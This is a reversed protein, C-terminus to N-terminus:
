KFSSSATPEELSKSSKTEQPNLLWICKMLTYCGSLTLALQAGAYVPRGGADVIARALPPGTIRAAVVLMVSFQRFAAESYRTGEMCSKAGWAEAIGMALGSFCYVVLDAFLLTPVGGWNFFFISGFVALFISARAMNMETIYNRHLGLMALFSIGASIISITSFLQAGEIVDKEYTTELLM